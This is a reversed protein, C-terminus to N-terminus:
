IDSIPAILHDALADIQSPVMAAKLQLTLRELRNRRREFVM